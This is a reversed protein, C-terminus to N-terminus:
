LSRLEAEYNENLCKLVTDVFNQVREVTLTQERDQFSLRLTLSVKGEPINKGEYVDELTIKVLEAIGLNMVSVHIKRYALDSDVVISIDREASPYKPLPESRIPEFAYQALTEFEIEALYVPQRLKYKEKLDDSLLGLVGARDQGIELLAAVAENLWDIGEASVMQYSSIRIGGMLTELIGKLHFFDLDDKPQKWNRDTYSGTALIGLVNRETPKGDPGRRYVKGIEFLRVLSQDFNFNRKAARVLGPALATRMYKTDETLPNRLAVREDTGIQFEEADTEEAFSLNVGESFGLGILTQRIANELSFVPSYQGANRSPPLTTPINQYGYFRALEETLDAELEMDARYTPCIVNWSDKGTNELSFNLGELTSVIFEREFPVGILATASQRKLAICVPEKKNPYVDQISGAICGGAIEEVLRCVRGIAPVTNNWDAGREFRYSSETSLGLKKSTRRISAPDFYASELLVRTTTSSIESEMGGMVGAIAVPGEGDNILLMAEDLERDVGDLTQMKEGKSARAVVIRGQRLVDYDFAHLPHGMELLVYNTIDVINNLPRMGAALLRRQMWEPSEGVRIGDFCLATYRPCLEPDRIEITYPIRETEITLDERLEPDRLPRGYLAALERAIGIHSMCDPRNATVEVDLIFTGDAEEFSDVLQGIMSLDDKLKEPTERIELYEQLWETSIKMLLVGAKSNDWFDLITKM